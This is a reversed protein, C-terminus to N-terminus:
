SRSARLIEDAGHELLLHAVSEGIRAAESRRGQAEQRVARSGDAATVIAVMSLTDGEIGAYAGLPM